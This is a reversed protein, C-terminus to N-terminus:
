LRRFVGVGITEIIKGNEGRQGLAMQVALRADDKHRPEHAQRDCVLPFREELFDYTDSLMFHKGSPLRNIWDYVADRLEMANPM